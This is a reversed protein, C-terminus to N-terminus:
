RLVNSGGPGAGSPIFRGSVQVSRIYQPTEMLQNFHEDRDVCFRIDIRPPGSFFAKPVKM